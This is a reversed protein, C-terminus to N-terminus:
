EKVESWDFEISFNDQLFQVIGVALNDVQAEDLHTNFNIDIGHLVEHWLTVDKATQPLLPDISIFQTRYQLSGQMNDDYKMHGQYRVVYTHPGIKFKSPVKM